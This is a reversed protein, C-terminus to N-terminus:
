LELSCPESFSRGVQAWFCSRRSIACSIYGKVCREGSAISKTKRPWLTPAGNQARCCHTAAKGCLSICLFSVVHSSVDILLVGGLGIHDYMFGVISGAILWGGQIGALLFTNAQVFQGEPTLEQVLATITPWFM